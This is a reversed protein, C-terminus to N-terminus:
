FYIANDGEPNDVWSFDPMGSTSQSINVKDNWVTPKSLQKTRIPNSIKIEDALEFTIIIWKETASSQTFRRLHGNFIPESEVNNLTYNKFDNPDVDVGLTEYFRVNSAGSEAYYFTLIDGNVEDSAACAIVAGLEVTRGQIYTALTQIDDDNDRACSVLVWLCIAIYKLKSM